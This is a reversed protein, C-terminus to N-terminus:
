TKAYACSCLNNAFSVGIFYVAMAIYVMHSSWRNWYRANWNRDRWVQVSSLICLGWHWPHDFSDDGIFLLRNWQYQLKKVLEESM